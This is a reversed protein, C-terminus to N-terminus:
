GDEDDGEIYVEYKKGPYDDYAKRNRESNIKHAETERHNQSEKFTNFEIHGCVFCVGAPTKNM